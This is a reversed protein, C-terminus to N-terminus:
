PYLKRLVKNTKRDIVYLEAEGFLFGPKTKGTPVYLVTEGKWLNVREDKSGKPILITLVKPLVINTKDLQINNKDLHKLILKFLDDKRYRNFTYHINKVMIDKKTTKLNTLSTLDKINILTMNLIVYKGDMKFPIYKKLRSESYDSGLMSLFDKIFFSLMGLSCLGFKISVPKFTFVYYKKHSFIKDLILLPM